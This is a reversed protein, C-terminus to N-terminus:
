PKIIALVFAYNRAMFRLNAAEQSFNVKVLLRFRWTKILRHVICM